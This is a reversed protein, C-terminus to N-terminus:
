GTLFRDPSTVEFVEDLKGDVVYSAVVEATLPALLVGNRYHGTAIIVRPATRLPGIAPLGDPTAPRLGARAGVFAAQRSAPLLRAAADALTRVGDMTTSEDFGVDEVTAGVLLSGDSWPVTYCAPGWVVRSPLAADLWKLHLLQGRVPRIPIERMGEVRVRPSWSGAAIVITGAVFRQNGARVEVHDGEPAIKAVESPSVFVAGARRASLAMASVLSSVGVFGHSRVILGGRADPSISPEASHLAAGDLWDCGVGAQELWVRSAQLRRADEEDFAVELTGTRAYEVRQGSRESVSAILADFLELSRIGLDLLASRQHAETYPALIGASAQSAGRGPSRMDLVTVTVGRRALADAVAVGIVGAGVVVVDNAIPRGGSRELEAHRQVV